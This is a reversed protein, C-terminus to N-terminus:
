RIANLSLRVGPIPTGVFGRTTAVIRSKGSKSAEGEGSTEIELLLMTGKQKMNITM